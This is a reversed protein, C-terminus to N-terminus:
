RPFKLEQGAQITEDVGVQNIIALDEVSFQEPLNGPVLDRFPATRSARVVNVRSPEISLIRRDTVSDFGRMTSLFSNEYSSFNDRASYGIFNYVNGGYEIYYSLVRLVGQQTQADALVYTAGYDGSRSTGSDVVQIGEQRAFQTAAAQASNAQAFTFIMIAQQNRDIMAVQSPMNQVAFNRPVPFSFKLDPHYFVNNEVFGQRPNEGMVIGDIHRLFEDEDVIRDGPLQKKWRASLEKITEEREGPDPHSSQWTPISNQQQASIRKLSNFFESGESAEYGALEAYEVGFRDSEREADRGYSLFFLQAATGGLNLINEAASGGLIGQGLIAGGLLGLQTFQQTAAAKSAHRGVVHTIEHGLVVALQAENDLHTLLGRTVYVYGGPLAFANVVPSDLVRFTFPTNRFEPDTDERNFHSQALVREGVEVVYRSLDEDDYLGFQAVIQPDSQAGLQKEQEWSYGFARSNGSIPNKSVVCGSLLLAAVMLVLLGQLRQFHYHSYM